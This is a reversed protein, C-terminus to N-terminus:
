CFTTNCADGDFTQSRYYEKQRESSLFFELRQELHAYSHKKVLYEPPQSTLTRSHTNEVINSEAHLYQMLFALLDSSVIGCSVGICIIEFIQLYAYSAMNEHKGRVAGSVYLVGTPKGFARIMSRNPTVPLPIEILDHCGHNHTSVIEILQTEDVGWRLSNDFLRCQISLFTPTVCTALCHSSKGHRHIGNPRSVRANALTRPATTNQNSDGHITLVKTKM